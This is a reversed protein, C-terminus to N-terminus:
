LSQRPLLEEWLSDVYCAPKNSNLESSRTVIKTAVIICNRTTTTRILNNEHIMGVLGGPVDKVLQQLEQLDVVKGKAVNFGGCHEVVM